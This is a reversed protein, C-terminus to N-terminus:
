GFNSQVKPTTKALPLTSGIPKMTEQQPLQYNKYNMLIIILITKIMMMMLIM